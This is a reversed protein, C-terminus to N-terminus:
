GELCLMKCARKIEKAKETDLFYYRFKGSKEKKVIGARRLIALHQSAVSQELRMRIYLDTVTQPGDEQLIELIRQRLKHNVARLVLAAKRIDAYNYAPETTTKVEKKKM